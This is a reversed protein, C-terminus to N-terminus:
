DPQEHITEKKASITSERIERLLDHLATKTSDFSTTEQKM